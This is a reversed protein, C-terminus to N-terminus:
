GFSVATCSATRSWGPTFLQYACDYDGYALAVASSRRAQPAPVGYFSAIEPFWGFYTDTLADEVPVVATMPAPAAACASLLV